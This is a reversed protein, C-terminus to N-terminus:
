KADGIEDEGRLRRESLFCVGGGEGRSDELSELEGFDRGKGRECVGESELECGARGLVWRCAVNGEM